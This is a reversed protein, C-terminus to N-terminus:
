ISFLHFIFLPASPTCLVATSKKDPSNFCVPTLKNPLGTPSCDRWFFLLLLHFCFGCLLVGHATTTGRESDLCGCGSGLRHNLRRM